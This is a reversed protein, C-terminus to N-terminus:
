SIKRARIINGRLIQFFVQRQAYKYGEGGRKSSKPCGWSHFFWGEM